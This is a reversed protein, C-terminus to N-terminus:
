IMEKKLKLNIYKLRLKKFVMNNPLQKLIVNNKNIMNLLLENFLADKNKLLVPGYFIEKKTYKKIGKAFKIVTYIIGNEKVLKENFVYFGNNTLYSRVKYSETNSQIIVVKALKVIEKADDLIKIIKQNGLGSIIITDIKDEKKIMSLGDSLRLNVNSVKLKDINKKAQNLAGLAIDCAISSKIHHNLILYIDLLAHDCGVDCIVSNKDVMNAIVALRKSLKVNTM